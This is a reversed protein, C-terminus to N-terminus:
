SAMLAGAPDGEAQASQAVGDWAWLQFYNSDVGYSKGTLAQFSARAQVPKHEALLLRAQSRDIQARLAGDEEADPGEQPPAAM